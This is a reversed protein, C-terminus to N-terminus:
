LDGGGPVAQRSAPHLYAVPPAGIDSRRLRGAPCVARPAGRPRRAACPHTDARAARKTSQSASATQASRAFRACRTRRRSRVRLLVPSDGCAVTGTFSGPRHARLRLKAALYLVAFCYVLSFCIVMVPKEKGVAMLNPAPARLSTASWKFSCPRLRGSITVSLASAASGTSASNLVCRLPSSTATKPPTNPLGVQLWTM